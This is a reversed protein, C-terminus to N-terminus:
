QKFIYSQKVGDVWATVELYSPTSSTANPYLVDIKLSVAKGADLEAGLQREMARYDVRNLDRTMPVLNIKDGAGGLHSAILHGGDYSLSCGAGEHGVCRQQYTNRDLKIGDLEGGVNAVRGNSDTVYVHGNDLKYVTDSDLSGNITKDWDGKSGASVEKIPKNGIDISPVDKQDIETRNGAFVKKISDTMGKSLIGNKQLFSLMEEATRFGPIAKGVLGEGAFEALAAGAGVVNGSQYMLYIKWLDGATLAVDIAKIAMIGLPILFFANNASANQAAAAAINVDGGALLAAFAGSLQAVNVGSSKIEDFKIAYYSAMEPSILREIIEADTMDSNRLEQVRASEEELFANIQAEKYLDSVAEGIIAGGAGSLCDFEETSEATSAGQGLGMFCGAGAHALYRVLNDIDNQKYLQGIKTAMAKGIKNTANQILSEKFQTEFEAGFDSLSGGSALVQVGADVVSHTVVQAAQQGLSLASLEDALRTYESSGEIVKDLPIGQQEALKEIEATTPTDNKFFEADIYSISAATVMSTAVSTWTEDSTIFDEMAGAFNGDVAGNAGAVAAQSVLSTVGASVAASTATAVSGGVAVSSFTSSLAAAAGQGVQLAAPGVVMSAAISVIAIAAPSLSTSTDNWQEYTSQMLDYQAADGISEYVELAWEMGPLNAIEYIQEELSLEPNGEFQVEVGYLAEVSFGGVISNAVVNEQQHGRSTSKVTLLSERVSSYSYHDNELTMLMNVKGQPANVFTGDASNIDTAKLTIDGLDSHIRVGKGADLVARLATTVYASEDVTTKAYKRHAVRQSQNQEDIITIGLEGLIEIHGRDAYLNAANIEVVGGAMLAINDGASISSQVHEIASSQYSSNRTTYSNERALTVSGVKISGEADFVIDSGAQAEAGLFVIDGMSEISIAEGAEINSILGLRDSLGHPSSFRNVITKQYFNQATIDITKTASITGTTLLTGGINMNLNGDGIIRAGEAVATDAVTALLADRRATITGSRIDIKRFTAEEGVFSVEHGSVRHNAAIHVIPVLVEEGNISRVEPWIVDLGFEAVDADSLKDGIEKSFGTKGALAFANEYLADIQDAESTFETTLLHRGSQFYVQSRILREQVFQDGILKIQPKAGELRQSFTSITASAKDGVQAIIPLKRYQLSNESVKYFSYTNEVEAEIDKDAYEAAQVGLSLLAVPLIFLGVVLTKVGKFIMGTLGRQLGMDTRKINM